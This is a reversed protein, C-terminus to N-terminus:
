SVVGVLFFKHMFGQPFEGGGGILQSVFMELDRKRRSMEEGTSTSTDSMTANQPRTCGEENAQERDFCVVTAQFGVGRRM